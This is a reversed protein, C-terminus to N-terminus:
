TKWNSAESVPYSCRYTCELAITTAAEGGDSLKSNNSLNRAMKLNAFWFRADARERQRNDVPEVFRVVCRLAFVQDRDEAM